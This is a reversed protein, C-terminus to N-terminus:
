RAWKNARPPLYTDRQIEEELDEEAHELGKEPFAMTVPLQLVFSLHICTTCIIIRVIKRTKKITYNAVCIFGNKLKLM